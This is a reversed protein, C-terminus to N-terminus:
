RRRTSSRCASGARGEGAELRPERRRYVGTTKKSVTDAVKAGLEELAARAEERTFGELTGTVVYTSGTLPGEVPREEEGAEFRLGLQACSPSSRATRARGLVM